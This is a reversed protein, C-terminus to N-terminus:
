VANIGSKLLIKFADQNTRFPESRNQDDWRMVLQEQNLSKISLAYMM